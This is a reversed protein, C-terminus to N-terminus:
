PAVANCVHDSTSWFTVILYMVITSLTFIVKFDHVFLYPSSLVAIKLVQLAITQFLVLIIKDQNLPCFQIKLHFNCPALSQTLRKVTHVQKLM